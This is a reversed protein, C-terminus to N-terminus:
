PVCTKRECARLSAELGLKEVAKRLVSSYAGHGVGFLLRELVRLFVFKQPRTAGKGGKGKGKGTHTPITVIALVEGACPARVIEFFPEDDEEEESGSADSDSDTGMASGGSAGAPQKGDHQAEGDASDDWTDEGHGEDRIYQAITVDSDADSVCAAADDTEASEM